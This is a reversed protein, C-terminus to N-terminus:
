RCVFVDIDAALGAGPCGGGFCGNGFDDIREDTSASAVRRQVVAVDGVVSCLASITDLEISGTETEQGSIQRVHGSSRVNAGLLDPSLWARVCEPM